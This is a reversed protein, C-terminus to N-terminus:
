RQLREIARAAAARTAPSTTRGYLVLVNGVRVINKGPPEGVLVALQSADRNAAGEDTTVAVIIGSDGEPTKFATVKDERSTGYPWVILPIGEAAFVRKVQAPTRATEGRGGCGSTCLAAAVTILSLVRAFV